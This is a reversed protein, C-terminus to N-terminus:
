LFAIQIDPFLHLCIKNQVFVIGLNRAFETAKCLKQFM